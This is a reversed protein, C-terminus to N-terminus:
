RSVLADSVGLVRRGGLGGCFPPTVDTSPAIVLLGHGFRLAFTPRVARRPGPGGCSFWQFYVGAKAGPALIHARPWAPANPNPEEETQLRQGHWSMRVLPQQQLLSCATASTNILTIGGLMTQTAGQFGASGSLQDSRCLPVSAPLKPATSRGRRNSGITLVYSSLGLAAVIAMATAGFLRRRLQRQRAEKILAEPEDQL